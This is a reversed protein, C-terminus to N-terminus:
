MYRAATLIALTGFVLWLVFRRMLGKAQGSGQERGQNQHGATQGLSHSADHNSLTNDSSLEAQSAPWHHRQRSSSQQKPGGARMIRAALALVLLAGFLIALEQWPLNFTM